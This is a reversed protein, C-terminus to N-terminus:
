FLKQDDDPVCSSTVHHLTEEDVKKWWPQKLNGILEIHKMRAAAMVPTSRSSLLQITNESALSLDCMKSLLESQVTLQGILARRHDDGRRLSRLGIVHNNLMHNAKIHNQILEEDGVDNKPFRERITALLETLEVRRSDTLGQPIMDIRADQKAKHIKDLWRRVQYQIMIAAKHQHLQLSTKIFKKRTVWGKWCAQIKFASEEQLSELYKGVTKAPINEITKLQHERSKVFEERRDHTEHIRKTKNINMQQAGFRRENMRRRYAKQFKAFAQSTAKLKKRTQFSRVFSQITTAATNEIQSVTMGASKEDLIRIVKEITDDFGNGKWKYLYTKFGRYRKTTYLDLLPNYLELLNNLICIALRAVKMKKTYSIKYALEDSINHIRSEEVYNFLYCNTSMMNNLFTLSILSIQEDEAMLIHLFDKSKVV